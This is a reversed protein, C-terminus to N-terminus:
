MTKILHWPPVSRRIEKPIAIIVLYLKNLHPTIVTKLALELHLASEGAKQGVPNGYFFPYLIEKAKKKLL